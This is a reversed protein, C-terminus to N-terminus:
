HNSNAQEYTKEERSRVPSTAEKRDAAPLTFTFATGRGLESQVSIQGGHAEVLHKSIALGLGAGGPQAGPVQVFKDFIRALYESPIGRGTDRVSVAIHDNRREATVHIEGGNSTYRLANSVLNAFIREVQSRDALVRGVNRAIETELKLGKSEVQPRLSETIARILDAADVSVLRPTIEGSEIKSLDLLDRM